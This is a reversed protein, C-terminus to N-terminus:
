KGSPVQALQMALTRVATRLVESQSGGLRSQCFDLLEVDKEYASFTMRVATRNWTQGDPGTTLSEQVKAM